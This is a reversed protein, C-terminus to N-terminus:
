NETLKKYAKEAACQQAQKKSSGTGEGYVQGKVSVSVKFKRNHSPGTEAVIEYGPIESYKDVTFEQLRSKFDVIAHFDDEKVREKIFAYVADFGQDLYIAGIISEVTNELIHTERKTIYKKMKESLFVYDELELEKGWKKLARRSVIRARIKTLDGESKDPFKRFLIDSVCASLISDGLFELRENDKAILHQSSYSRHLLAIDLLSRDRFDVGLKDILSDLSKRKKNAM